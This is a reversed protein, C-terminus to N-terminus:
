EEVVQEETTTETTALTHTEEAAENKTEAEIIKEILDAKKDTEAYAIKNEDCYAILDAVKLKKLEKERAERDYEKEEDSEVVQEFTTTEVIEKAEPFKFDVAEYNGRDTKMIEIADEKPMSFIIGTPVYKLKVEKIEAM